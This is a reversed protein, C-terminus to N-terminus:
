RPSGQEPPQRWIAVLTRDDDFTERSFDLLHAFARPPPPAQLYEAFLQGTATATVWPTESAM